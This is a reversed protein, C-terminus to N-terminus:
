GDCLKHMWEATSTRNSAPKSLGLEHRISTKSLLVKAAVTGTVRFKLVLFLDAGRQGRTLEQYDQELVKWKKERLIDEGDINLIDNKLQTCNLSYIWNYIQNRM